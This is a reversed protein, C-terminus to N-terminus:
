PSEKPHAPGPRSGALSSMNLSTSPFRSLHEAVKRDLDPLWDGPMVTLVQTEIRRAQDAQDPDATRAAAAKAWLYIKALHAPALAGTDAQVPAHGYLIAAPLYAPLHGAAAASELWFLAAELDPAGGQGQALMLGLRHCAEPVGHLAAQTYWHRAAALDQAGPEAQELFRALQLMAPPSHAEAVRKCMAIARVTDRTVGEGRFHFDAATCLSLLHGDEAAREYWTLAAAIDKDRGIGQALCDGWLHEATPVHQRAAKGFWDCAKVADVPRGWGQQHFQGIVFQALPNRDAHRMYLGHARQFDRAALARQAADLDPMRPGPREAQAAMTASMGMLTSVLLTSLLRRYM